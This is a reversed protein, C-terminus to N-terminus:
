LRGELMLRWTRYSGTSVSRLMRGAGDDYLSRTLHRQRLLNAGLNTGSVRLRLQESWKWLGYLDLDRRAGAYALLNRSTRSSVGAQYGLSGGISLPLRALRYDGGVSASWPLQSGQRNDPGPVGTVRSWNRALNARLDFAGLPLKAELQLGRVLADGGNVPTAVWREGTLSLQDRMVGKVHQLSGSM